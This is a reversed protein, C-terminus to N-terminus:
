LQIIFFSTYVWPTVMINKSPQFGKTIHLSSCFFVVTLLHYDKSNKVQNWRNIWFFFSDLFKELHCWGEESIQQHLRWIWGYSPNPRLYRLDQLHQDDQFQFFNNSFQSLYRPNSVLMNWVKIRFLERLVCYIVFEVRSDRTLISYPHFKLM